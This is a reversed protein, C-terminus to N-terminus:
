EDQKNPFVSAVVVVVVSKSGSRTGLGRITCAFKSRSSPRTAFISVITTEPRVWTQRTFESLMQRPYSSWFGKKQAIEERDRGESGQLAESVAV